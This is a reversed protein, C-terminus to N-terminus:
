PKWALSGANAAFSSVDVVESLWEAGSPVAALLDFCSRPAVAGTHDTAFSHGEFSAGAPLLIEVLKACARWIHVCEECGVSDEWQRFCPHPHMSLQLGDVMSILANSGNHSSIANPDAGGALLQKIIQLQKDGEHLLALSGGEHVGCFYHCGALDHVHDHLPLRWGIDASESNPDAQGVEVLCKCLKSSSANRLHAPGAVAGLAFLETAIRVDTEIHENLIADQAWDIELQLHRSRNYERYSYRQKTCACLHDILTSADHVSNPDAGRSILLEFRHWREAASALCLNSNVQATAMHLQGPLSCDAGNTILWAIDADKGELACAVGLPSIGNHNITNVDANFEILMQMWSICGSGGGEQSPGSHSAVMHLATNGWADHVNPDIRNELLLASIELGNSLRQPTSHEFINYCDIAYIHNRYGCARVLAHESNKKGAPKLCEVAGSDLLLKVCEVSDAEVARLIACPPLRIKSLSGGRAEVDAASLDRENQTTITAGMDLLRTVAEIATADIACILASRAQDDYSNIVAGDTCFPSLVDLMEVSNSQAASHLVTGGASNRTQEIQAGRRLADKAGTLSDANVHHLLMEDPSATLSAIMTVALHHKNKAAVELPSVPKSSKRNNHLNTKLTLDCGAEHLVTLVNCQGRSAATCAISSLVQACPNGSCVKEEPHWMCLCASTASHQVPSPLLSQRLLRFLLRHHGHLAAWSAIGKDPLKSMSRSFAICSKRHESCNRLLPGGFFSDHIVQWLEDDHFSARLVESAQVLGCSAVASLHPALLFISDRLRGLHSPGM